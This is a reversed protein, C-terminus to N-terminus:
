QPYWFEEESEESENFYRDEEPLHGVEKFALKITYTPVDLPRNTFASLYTAGYTDAINRLQSSGGVEHHQFKMLTIEGPEKGTQRALQEKIHDISHNQNFFKSSVQVGDLHLVVLRKSQKCGGHVPPNSIVEHEILPAKGRLLQQSSQQKKCHKHHLKAPEAKMLEGCSPCQYDIKEMFHVDNPTPKIFLTRSVALM